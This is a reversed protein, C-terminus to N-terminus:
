ANFCWELGAPLRECAYELHLVRRRRHSITRGSAHLLLPRMLLADGSKATCLVAARDQRSKQIAEANLRGLLHTGPIVQLAGNEADADDLHLRITLMRELLEVPPPVHVLGNKVSWPGYGAMETKHGVAITLDQHWAVLWNAEASKDFYIARVPFPAASFLPRLLGMLVESEALYRVESTGLLGRRGANVVDGLVSKMCGVLDASLVNPVMVYGDRHLAKFVGLSQHAVPTNSFAASVM